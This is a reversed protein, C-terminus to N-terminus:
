RTIIIKKSYLNDPFQLQVFYTGNPLNNINIEKPSSSYYSYVTEGFINKITILAKEEYAPTLSLRFIGQNPNPFINISPLNKAIVYKVDMQLCADTTVTGTDQLTTVHNLSTSTTYTQMVQNSTLTAPSHTLLSITLQNCVYGNIDTKILYVDYDGAGFSNTIGAVVYAGDSTQCVANAEDDGPGGYTNAWIINGNEDTKMIYANYSCTDCNNAYGTIVYGGDKTQEIAQGYDYGKGGYTKTWLTDGIANTKILYIDILNTSDFSSSGAVIYGGDSTQQVSNGWDVHSSGYTKTWSVTGNSDTKILYADGNPDSFSNTYGTLIYGKDLTQKISYGDSIATTGNLSSTWKINGTADTKILYISGSDAGAVFSNTYGALIFGGDNTQEVVNAYDDQVGGYTKTWLTDGNADTKILYANYNIAGFSKSYGAIIYGGDFTQQVSYAEDDRTGGYTKSWIISGISDTKTVFFDNSGAGYSNTYGAVIFGKDTSQRVAYGYEGSKKGYTKQFTTQAKVSVILLLFYIRVSISLNRKM